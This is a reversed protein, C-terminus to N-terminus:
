GITPIYSFIDETLEDEPWAEGPQLWVVPLGDEGLGELPNVGRQDEAVVPVVPVAVRQPGAGLGAAAQLTVPGLGLGVNAGVNTGRTIWDYLSDPSPLPLKKALLSIRNLKCLGIGSLVTGKAIGFAGGISAATATLGAMQLAGSVAEPLARKVRRKAVPKAETVVLAV